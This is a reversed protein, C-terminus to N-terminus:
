NEKAPHPDASDAATSVSAPIDLGGGLARILSISFDLSRARLDVDLNDQELLQEQASIVQLYNDLGAEYRTQALAYAERATAIARDLEGRQADASRLSTLQDAVDHLAEVLTQNYQDVAADYDADKGALNARSNGGHYIPLTLAPGIGAIMSGSKAFDSLGLSQLGIFAALNVDPYFDAKAVTIDEAAAAVRLKQAAVDPRRGILDAPVFSPLAAGPPVHLHPRAIDLGRDPGRGVLAALQNRALALTEDIQAIQQRTAPIAAEAQKMDMDSDLGAGVRQRTLELSHMRQELLAQAVDRQEYAHQLQIYARAISTSLLLQAAYQDVQTAKAEDLASAYAARHRNWLDLDYNFDLELQNLTFWEGGYGPPYIYNESFRQRSANFTASIDPTRVAGAAQAVALAKQVRDQAIKPSPSNALGEEILADLQADGFPKWWDTRPQSGTPTGALTRAAQLQNADAPTATTHLGAMSTCGALLAPLLLLRGSAFFRHSINM